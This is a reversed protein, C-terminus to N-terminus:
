PLLKCVIIEPDANIRVPITSCGIGLSVFLPGHGAFDFRGRGLKRSLPGGASVIPTGDRLAIQGGHTHGAFAVDFRENRLFLLGDPSHTLFIRVPGTNNFAKAIDARGTWPDDIGCISVCDFPSALAVSENILVRAGAETLRSRIYEDGVWLDHNGLVAYTGLRAECGALAECLVDIHEARGSVYDGGLLIVDPRLANLEEVMSSFIEPHTSPGAHFDSVFALVLPAPLRGGERVQLEHSTLRLRGHLGCWYSWRALAGRLLCADVASM